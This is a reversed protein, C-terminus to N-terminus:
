WKWSNNGDMDFILKTLNIKLPYIMLNLSFVCILLYDHHDITSMFTDIFTILSTNVFTKSLM